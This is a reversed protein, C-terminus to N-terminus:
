PAASQRRRRSRDCSSYCRDAATYECDRTAIRSSESRHRAPYARSADPVPVGDILCRGDVVRVRGEAVLKLALPYIRHEVTSCAPPSRRKPTATACRWRARRSSRAPIWKRCWLICPRAMCRRAPRSRASTPTSARSPPCCRRTSTSCASRGNRRRLRPTLLRMFGALCVIDIRHKELAAQMRASSPPATRASPPTTSSKPPSAPPARAHRPRRRRAPEVPGARNRGSLRQRERGRDAGGHQLRPRFDSRRRAQPEDSMRALDLKGDYVVRPEGRRACSTASADRGKRRRQM